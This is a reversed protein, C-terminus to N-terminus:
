EKKGEEFYFWILERIKRPVKNEAFFSELNKRFSLGIEWNQSMREIYAAVRNEREIKRDLHSRDHVNETIPYFVPRVGNNEAYYLYCRPRYDEQDATIRMMSGSNVVTVGNRKSVFSSHNDGTLILDFYEGFMDFLEQDTYGSNDWAPRKGQWTLEHLMLISRGAVPLSDAEKLFEEVKGFPIGTISLTNDSAGVVVTQKKLIQLKRNKSEEAAIELLSLASRNYHDLSHMPLDHQGPIGIFTQPLHTYVEACLWPSAKWYDFVDGACLVPCGGNKGSLDQLFRLKNKQAEWYNDTRSVPTSETLHLDSTLIADAKKKATRKM